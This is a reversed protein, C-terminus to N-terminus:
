AQAEQKYKRAFLLGGIIELLAAVMALALLGQVWLLADKRYRPLALQEGQPDFRVAPPLATQAITQLLSEGRPVNAPKSTPAALSFIDAPRPWQHLAQKIGLGQQQLLQQILVPVSAYRLGSQQQQRQQQAYLPATFVTLNARRYLPFFKARRAKDQKLAQALTTCNPQDFGRLRQYCQCVAHEDFARAQPLLWVPTKKSLTPCHQPVTFNKGFALIWLDSTASFRSAHDRRKIKFGLVQLATQLQFLPDDLVREGYLDAIITAQPVFSALNFYFENDLPVADAPATQVHLRLPLSAGSAGSLKFTHPLALTLLVRAQEAAISAQTQAIKQQDHYVTVMIDRMINLKGAAAIEIDLRQKTLHTATAVSVRQVYLNFDAASRLQPVALHHLPITLHQWHLSGWTHQDRDSVIITRDMDSLRPLQQRLVSAMHLGARHFTLSALHEAFAQAHVFQQMTDNHSTGVTLDGLKRLRIYVDQLFVRYQEISVYAALSPSFDIFLYLQLQRKTEAAPLMSHPRLAFLLAASSALLFCLFALRPPWRLRLRPLRARPVTFIALLPFWVRRYKRRVIFWLLLALLTLSLVAVFINSFTIM